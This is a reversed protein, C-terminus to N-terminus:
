CYVVANSVKKLHKKMNSNNGTIYSIIKGDRCLKCKATGHKGDNQIFEFQDLIMRTFTGPRSQWFINDNLIEANNANESADIRDAESNENEEEKQDDKTQDMRAKKQNYNDRNLWDAIDDNSYGM